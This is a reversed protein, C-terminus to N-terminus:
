RHTSRGKMLHKSLSQTRQRMTRRTHSTLLTKLRLRHNLLRATTRTLRTFLRIRIQKMRNTLRIRTRQTTLLLLRLRRLRRRRLKLRNSRILHIKTRISINRKRSQTTSHNMTLLTSPHGRSSHIIHTSRLTSISITHISRSTTIRSNLTTKLRSPLSIHITRLTM